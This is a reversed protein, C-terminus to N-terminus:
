QVQILEFYMNHEKCYTKISEITANISSQPTSAGSCIAISSSNQIGSLNIESETEIYQTNKCYERAIAYLKTSNSSAKGGIIVVCDVKQALERVEQQRDVTDNCITNHFEIKNMLASCYQYIENYSKVNYTTQAVMCVGKSSIKAQPIIKEAWEIDEIIIPDSHSWGSTGIIEPHKPNGVIIVDLGRASADQVIEHVKKVKPCTKDIIEVNRKTLLDIVRKPVGHARILVKKDSNSIENLENIIKAGKNKLDTIVVPNHVVDGLICLNEGINEYASKVAMSVGFCFGSYKSIYCKM